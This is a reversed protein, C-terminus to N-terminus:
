SNQEFKTLLNNTQQNLKKKFFSTGGLLLGKLGLAQEAWKHLNFDDKHKIIKGNSFEFKADIVNHVKRGTQGFTYRAEWHAKGLDKHIAVESFAVSLDKSNACLM